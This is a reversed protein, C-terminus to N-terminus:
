PYCIDGINKLNWVVSPHYSIRDQPLIRVITQLYSIGKLLKKSLNRCGTKFLDTGPMTTRGYGVIIILFLFYITKKCRLNDKGGLMM